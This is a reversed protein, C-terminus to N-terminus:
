MPPVERVLWGNYWYWANATVFRPPIISGPPPTVNQGQTVIFTKATTTGGPYVYRPDNPGAKKFPKEAPTLIEPGIPDTVGVGDIQYNLTQPNGAGVSADTAM